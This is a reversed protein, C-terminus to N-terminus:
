APLVCKLLVSQMKPSRQDNKYHEKDKHHCKSDIQLPEPKQQISGENQRERRVHCFGLEKVPSKPQVLKLTATRQVGSCSRLTTMKQMGTATQTMSRNDAHTFQDRTGFSVPFLVQM